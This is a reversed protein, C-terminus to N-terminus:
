FPIGKCSVPKSSSPSQQVALEAPLAFTQSSLQRRRQRSPISRTSICVQSTGPLNELFIATTELSQGMQIRLLLTTELALRAEAAWLRTAKVQKIRTTDLRRSNVEALTIFVLDGM